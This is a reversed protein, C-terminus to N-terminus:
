VQWWVSPHYNIWYATDYMQHCHVSEHTHHYHMTILDDIKTHSDCIAYKLGPGYCGTHQQLMASATPTILIIITLLTWPCVRGRTISDRSVFPWFCEVWNAIQNCCCWEIVVEFTPPIIIPAQYRVLTGHQDSSSEWIPTIPAALICIRGNPVLKAIPIVHGHASCITVATCHIGGRHMAM